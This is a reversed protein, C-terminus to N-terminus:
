EPSITTGSSQERLAAIRWGIGTKVLVASALGREDPMQTGDPKHAGSIYWEGDICLCM